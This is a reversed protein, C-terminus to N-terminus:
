RAGTRLGASAAPPQVDAASGDASQWQPFVEATAPQLRRMGADPRPPEMGGSTVFAAPCPPEAPAAAGPLAARRARRRGAPGAPDRTCDGGAIEVPLRAPGVSGMSM